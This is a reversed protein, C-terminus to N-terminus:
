EACLSTLRSSLVSSGTGMSSRTSREPKFEESTRAVSKVRSIFPMM